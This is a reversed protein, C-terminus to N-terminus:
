RPGVGLFNAPDFDEIDIKGFDKPPRYIKTKESDLENVNFTSITVEVLQWTRDRRSYNFKFGESWRFGGGGYNDVSFTKTDTIVNESDFPDGWGGGCKSCYVMKRNRKALQLSRDDQRTLIVLERLNGDEESGPEELILLYDQLGDGNLDATTFYLLSETKKIFPIVEAPTKQESSFALGPSMDVLLILFLMTLFLKLKTRM